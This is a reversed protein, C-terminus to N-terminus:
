RKGPCSFLSSAALLWPCGAFGVEFVRGAAFTLLRTVGLMLFLLRSISCLALWTALCLYFLDLGLWLM